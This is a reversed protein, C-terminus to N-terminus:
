GRDEIRRFLREFDAGSLEMDLTKRFGLMGSYFALSRELDGVGIAVHHIESFAM